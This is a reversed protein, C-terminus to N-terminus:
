HSDTVKEKMEKFQASTEKPLFLITSDGKQMSHNLLLWHARFFFGVDLIKVKSTKFFSKECCKSIRKWTHRFPGDKEPQFKQALRERVRQISFTLNLVSTLDGWRGKGNIPINVTTLHLGLADSSWNKANRNIVNWNGIFRKRSVLYLFNPLIWELKLKRWLVGKRIKSFHRLFQSPNKSTLALDTM